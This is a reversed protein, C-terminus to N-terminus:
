DAAAINAVAIAALGYNGNDQGGEKHLVLYFTGAATANLTIEAKTGNDGGNGEMVTENSMIRNGNEDYIDLIISPQWASIYLTIKVQAQADLKVSVSQPRKGWKIKNTKSTDGNDGSPQQTGDSWTFFQHKTGFGDGGGGLEGSTYFDGIITGGNKRAPGNNGNNNIYMWDITGESLDITNDQEPMLNEHTASATGAASAKQSRPTNGVVAVAVLSVNDTWENQNQGCIITITFTKEETGFNAMDPTFVIQKCKNQSDDGSFKDNSGNNTFEYSAYEVGDYSISITNKAHYAGTFISIYKVDKTVKVTFSVRGSNEGKFVIGDIRDIFSQEVEAGNLWNMGVRYDFFQGEGNIEEDTILSGGKMEERFGDAGFHRWDLTVNAEDLEDLNVTENSGNAYDTPTVTVNLKVTVECELVTGDKTAKVITKGFGKATVLGSNADVDAIKNDETSFVVGEVDTGEEGETMKLTDTAQEGGLTLTMTDKNLKYEVVNVTITFTKGGVTATVTAEGKAKATITGEPSVEAYTDGATVKYTATFAHAPNAEIVIQSTKEVSITVSTGSKLTYETVTVFARLKVEDDITVTIIARGAGAATLTGDSSDVTVVQSDSSAFSVNTTYEEGDKKVVVKGAADGDKTVDFETKELTYETDYGVAIAAWGHNGDGEKSMSFTFTDETTVNIAIKVEVAKNGGDAVGDATGYGTVVKSAALITNAKGDLVTVFYSAKWGTLYLTVVHKGATLHIPVSWANDVWHTNNVSGGEPAASSDQEYWTFRGFTPQLSDTGDGGTYQIDGDKIVNDVGKRRVLDGNGNKAYVWDETGIVSLNRTESTLAKVEPAVATASPGEDVRETNGVVAIAVLSVNNANDGDGKFGITVTFTMETGIFHTQDPTFIIQKNKDGNGGDNTFTRSACVVGNYSISITNTAHWAGTFIAVYKADKTFKVDFSINTKFTIGDKRGGLQQATTTGDTWSMDVRYDYFDSAKQDYKDVEGILNGDKKSDKYGSQGFYAWDLTVNTADLADLNVATRESDSPYDVETQVVDYLVNVTIEFTDAGEIAVTVTTTGVGKATILGNDGVQAVEASESTYTTTPIEGAPDREVTLQLTGGLKMTVTEDEIEEGDAKLTYQVASSVTVTTTFERGGVTVTVTATGTGVAHLTGGEVTVVGANSTKYTAEVAHDAPDATVTIHKDPDGMRLATESGMAANDIKVTYETVTVNAKVEEGDVSCTIVATGKAVGTVEGSGADVTAVNTNSSTFTHPRGGAPLEPTAKLTLRARAGAAIDLSAPDLSFAYSQAVTVSCTLTATGVKATIDTEGAAVATVLGTESVTAIDANKSEYTVGSTVAKGDQDSVSLQKTEGTKLALTTFNLAYEGTTEGGGQQTKVTVSCSLTKDTGGIAATVTTSGAQVATVTGGDVTAVAPDASTWTVEGEPEPSITLTKTGGVTLEIQTESLAYETEEGGGCGALAFTLAAVLLGLLVWISRKKM